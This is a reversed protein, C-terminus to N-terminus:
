AGAALVADVNMWTDEDLAALTRLYLNVADVGYTARVATAAKEIAERGPPKVEDDKIVGDEHALGLADLFAGMLPRQDAFHYAILARTAITDSVDRIQALQRARRETPLGQVSRPRFKLRRAIAVVAEAHQADIEPSEHDRWFAEAAKTRLDVSM